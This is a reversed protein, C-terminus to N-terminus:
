YYSILLRERARKLSFTYILNEELSGWFTSVVTCFLWTHYGINTTNWIRELYFEVRDRMGINTYVIITCEILFVLMPIYLFNILYKSWSSHLISWCFNIKSSYKDLYLVLTLVLVAPIKLVFCREKSSSLYRFLIFWFGRNLGQYMCLGM